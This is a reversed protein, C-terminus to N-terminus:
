GRNIYVRLLDAGPITQDPSPKTHHLLKPQVTKKATVIPVAPEDSDLMGPIVRAINRARLVPSGRATSTQCGPSTGPLIGCPQWGDEGYDPKVEKITTALAYRLYRRNTKIHNLPRGKPKIKSSEIRMM